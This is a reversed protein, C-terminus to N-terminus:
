DREGMLLAPNTKFYAAISDFLDRAPPRRLVARRAVLFIEVDFEEPPPFCRVLEPDGDGV